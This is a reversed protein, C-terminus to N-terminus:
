KFFLHWSMLRSIYNFPRASIWARAGFCLYSPVLIWCPLCSFVAPGFGSLMAVINFRCGKHFCCQVIRWQLFLEGAQWSRRFLGRPQTFPVRDAGQLLSSCDDSKWWSFLLMSQVRGSPLLTFLLSLLSREAPNNALHKMRVSVYQISISNTPPSPPDTQGGPCAIALWQESTQEIKFSLKTNKSGIFSPALALSAGCLCVPSVNWENARLTHLRLLRRGNFRWAIIGDQESWRCKQADGMAMAKVTVSNPAEFSKQM